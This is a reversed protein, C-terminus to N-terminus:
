GLSSVRGHWQSTAWLKAIHSSTVRPKASTTNEARSAELCTGEHKPDKPTSHNHAPTLELTVGRRNQSSLLNASLSSYAMGDQCQGLRAIGATMNASHTWARAKTIQMTCPIHEMGKPQITQLLSQQRMNGRRSLGSEHLIGLQPEQRLLAWLQHLLGLSLGDSGDGLHGALAELCEALLLPAQAPHSKLTRTSGM